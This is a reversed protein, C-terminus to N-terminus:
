GALFLANPLLAPIEGPKASLDLDSGRVLLLSFKPSPGYGDVAVRGFVEVEPPIVIELDDVGKAPVVVPVLPAALNSAMTVMAQYTGPMIKDLKYSNDLEHPLEVHQDVRMINF